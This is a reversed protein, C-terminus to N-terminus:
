FFWDIGEYKFVFTKDDAMEKESVYDGRKQDKLFYDKRDKVYAKLYNSLFSAEKTRFTSKYYNLVEDLSIPANSSLIEKAHVEAYKVIANCIYLWLIM